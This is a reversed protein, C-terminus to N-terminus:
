VSVLVKLVSNLFNVFFQAISLGISKSLLCISIAIGIVNFLNRFSSNLILNKPNESLSIALVSLIVTALIYSCILKM